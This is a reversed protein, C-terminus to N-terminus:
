TVHQMHQVIRCLTCIANKLNGLSTALQLHCSRMYAKDVADPHLTEVHKHHEHPGLKNVCTTSSVLISVLKHSLRCM